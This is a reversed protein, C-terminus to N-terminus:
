DLEKVVIGYQSAKKAKPIDGNVPLLIQLYTIKLKGCFKKYIRLKTQTHLISITFNLM